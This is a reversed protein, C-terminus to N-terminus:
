LVLTREFRGNFDQISSDSEQSPGDSPKEEFEVHVDLVFFFPYSEKGPNAPFEGLDQFSVSRFTNEKMKERGKSGTDRLKEVIGPLTRGLDTGVNPGKGVSTRGRVIGSLFSRDKAFFRLVAQSQIRFVHAAEKNM